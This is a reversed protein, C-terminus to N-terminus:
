WQGKMTWTKYWQTGYNKEERSYKWQTHQLRKFLRVVYFAIRIKIWILHNSATKHRCSLLVTFGWRLGFLLLLFVYSEYFYSDFMLWVNTEMKIEFTKGALSCFKEVSNLQWINADTFANSRFGLQAACYVKFTLCHIFLCFFFCVCLHTLIVISKTGSACRSIFHLLLRKATATPMQSIIRNSNITRRNYKANPHLINVIAYNLKPSPVM